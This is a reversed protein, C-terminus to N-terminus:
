DNRRPWSLPGGSGLLHPLLDPDPSPIVVDLVLLGRERPWAAGQEVASRVDSVEGHLVLYGKGGLGESLRLHVLDVTAAKVALDAAVIASAASFTEVIGIADLRDPLEPREFAPVVSPHLNPIFLDDLLAEAAIERGRALSQGVEEVEGRFWIVYKGPSVSGAFVLEVAATKVIADATEFGRAISSLEILGICPKPDDVV